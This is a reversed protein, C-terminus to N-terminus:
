FCKEILEADTLRGQKISNLLNTEVPTPKM